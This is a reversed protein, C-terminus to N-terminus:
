NEKMVFYGRVKKNAGAGVIETIYFVNTSTANEDITEHDTLDVYTGRQSAATTSDTDCEFEIGNTFLIILDEHASSGGTTVSEMAIMRVETTGSDARQLYGSAWELADYKTITSSTVTGDVIKRLRGSDFKIPKIMIIFREVNALFAVKTRVM